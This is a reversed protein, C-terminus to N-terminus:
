MIMVVVYNDYNIKLHYWYKKRKEEGGGGM